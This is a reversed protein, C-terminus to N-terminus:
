QTPYYPQGPAPTGQPSPLEQTHHHVTQNQVQHPVQHPVAQNYVGQAGAYGTNQTSYPSPTYPDYPPSQAPYSPQHQQQQAWQPQQQSGLTQHESTPAAVGSAKEVDSSHKAWELRFFHAVYAFTAVFLLLNIASIGAVASIVARGTPGAVAVTDRKSIVCHGANITSGDDYCDADVPVVFSARYAANAGLSAIWLVMMFFDLSLVAWTNYGSRCGASHETLIAYLAVIWTFVGSAIAIGQADAYFGHILFGSLAVIILAVVIQAIRLGIFWRPTPILTKGHRVSEM